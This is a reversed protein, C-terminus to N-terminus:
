GRFHASTEHRAEKADRMMQVPIMQWLLPEAHPEVIILIFTGRHARFNAAVELRTQRGILQIACNEVRM